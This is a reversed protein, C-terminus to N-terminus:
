KDADVELCNAWMTPAANGCEYLFQLLETAGVDTAQLAALGVRKWIDRPASPTVKKRRRIYVLKLVCHALAFTDTQGTSVVIASNSNRSETQNGDLFNLQYVTHSLHAYFTTPDITLQDGQGTLIAFM